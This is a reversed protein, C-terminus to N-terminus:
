IMGMLKMLCTWSNMLNWHHIDMNKVLMFPFNVVQVLIFLDHMVIGMVLKIRLVFHTYTILFKGLQYEYKSM